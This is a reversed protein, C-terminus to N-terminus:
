VSLELSGFHKSTEPILSHTYLNKGAPDFHVDDRYPDLMAFFERTFRTVIEAEQPTPM